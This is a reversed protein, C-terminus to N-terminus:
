IKYHEVVEPSIRLDPRYKIVGLVFQKELDYKNEMLLLIKNDLIINETGEETNKSFVLVYSADSSSTKTKAVHIDYEYNDSVAISSYTINIDIHDKKYFFMGEENVIIANTYVFYNFYLTVAYYTVGAALLSKIIISVIEDYNNDLSYIVEIITFLKYFLIFFPVSLYIKSKNLKKEDQVSTVTEFDNIM